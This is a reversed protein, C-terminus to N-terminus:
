EAGDDEHMARLLRSVLQARSGTAPKGHWECLAQLEATPRGCVWRPDDDEYEHPECDSETVAFREDDSEGGEDAESNANLAPMSVALRAAAAGDIGQEALADLVYSNVRAKAAANRVREQAEDARAQAAAPAEAAAADDAAAPAAAVPDADDGEDYTYTAVIQEQPKGRRRRPQSLTSSGSM